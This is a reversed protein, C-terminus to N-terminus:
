GATAAELEVAVESTGAGPARRLWPSTELRVAVHSLMSTLVVAAAMAVLVPLLGLARFGVIGAGWGVIVWHAFYM